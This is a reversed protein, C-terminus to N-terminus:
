DQNFWSVRSRVILDDITHILQAPSSLEDYIRDKESKFWHVSVEDWNSKPNENIAEVYKYGLSEM